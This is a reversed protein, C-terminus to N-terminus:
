LSPVPADVNRVEVPGIADPLAALPTGSVRTRLATRQM